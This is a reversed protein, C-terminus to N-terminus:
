AAIRTIVPDNPGPPPALQANMVDRVRRMFGGLPQADDVFLPAGVRVRARVVRKQVLALYHGVFGDDGIWCVDDDDYALTVPVVPVGCLRALGFLGRHFPQLGQAPRATTGEPFGLVSVGEALARRASRLVRAGSSASGREVFLVGLQGCLPGVVPWRAVEAKAIPVSPTLAGLVVPDLWSLHNAVIVCPARPVAGDVDVDVGLAGSARTCTERLLRARRARALGGDADLDIRAAGIAEAAIVAASLSRVVTSTIM